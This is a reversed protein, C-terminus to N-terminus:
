RPWCPVSVANPTRAEERAKAQPLQIELFRRRFKAQAGLGEVAFPLPIQRFVMPRALDAGTALSKPDRARNRGSMTLPRPAVWVEITGPEIWAADTGVFVVQDETTRGVCVRSRLEAEAKRWDEWEQWGTGGRKQFIQYARPAVAGDIKRKQEEATLPVIRVNREHNSPYPLQGRNM